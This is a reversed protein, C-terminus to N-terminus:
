LEVGTVPRTPQIIEQRTRLVRIRIYVAYIAVKIRSESGGGLTESTSLGGPYLNIWYGSSM